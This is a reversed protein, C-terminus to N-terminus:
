IVYRAAKCESEIHVVHKVEKNVKLHRPADGQSSQIAAVHKMEKNGKLHCPADGQM